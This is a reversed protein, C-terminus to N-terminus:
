KVLTIRTVSWYPGSEMRCFYMGSAVSNGLDDIGDWRVEHRGASRVEDLLSRVKRGALDHVALTVQGAQAMTFAITTAPNFPNPTAGQLETVPPVSGGSVGSIQFPSVMVSASENGHVDVATLRYWAHTPAVNDVYATDSQATVLNGANPAFEPSAGRYLRYQLLDAEVNPLWHLRTANGVRRTALFTPTRPPLNDVSSGSGPLSEWHLNGATRAQVMFATTQAALATSDQETAAVYSYHSLYGATVTTLYEWYYTAAAVVTLLLDGPRGPGDEDPASALTVHAGREILASARSSPVSRFVMYQTVLSYPEGELYSADWSVRVMGGQDNPVDQISIIEPEPSGRYGHRAFRQAYIDANSGSRYDNWVAIVGGRDDPALCPGYLSGPATCLALGAPPWAADVAGNVPVHQAYLDILGNGSRDDIWAIVAGGAGDKIIAYAADYSTRAGPCVSRGNIPWAPDVKGSQLLHQVYVVYYYDRYDVWSVIAGGADDSVLEVRGQDNAAVCLAQGNLTWDPDVTGNALVHQAYIDHYYLSRRDKWAVIAGGNGDAIIGPDWQDQELVCLGRGNVPWEPDVVGNAQIHQVYVDFTVNGWNGLRADEWTVIAGGAGDAVVKPHWQFSDATCLARGNAPWAPDVTGNALVHQAFIDTLYDVRCDQWTVIAGGAGDAVIAPITQNNAEVCLGIGDIPWDPDVVGSALLHQAYIDSNDASRRDEWAVIAGGQGDAVIVLALQTTPAACIVSGDVPWEPDVVGSGLVHQAYIDQSIGARDDLWAVICGGVGDPVVVAAEQRNPATCVPLNVYSSVPWAAVADRGTTAMALVSCLALAVCDSKGASM